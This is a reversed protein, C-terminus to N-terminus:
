LFLQREKKKKILPKKEILNVFDLVGTRGKRLYYSPHYIFGVNKDWERLKFEKKLFKAATKGVCIIYTPNLSQLFSWTNPRFFDIEDDTPPRIKGKENLPILPIANIIAYSKIKMRKVWKKLLVGSKGSFPIGTKIETFGPAEGIFVYDPNYSGTFSVINGKKEILKKYLPHKKALKRLKMELLFVDTLNDM